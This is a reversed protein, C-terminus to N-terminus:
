SKLEQTVGGPFRGEALLKDFAKAAQSDKKLVKRLADLRELMKLDWGLPEYLLLEPPGKVTLAYVPGKPPAFGKNHLNGAKNLIGTGNLHDIIKLAQAKSIQLAPWHALRREPPVRPVRLTLSIYPNKKDQPGHYRIELTFQDVREKLGRKGKLIDRM